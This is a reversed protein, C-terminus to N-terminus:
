SAAKPFAWPDRAGAAEVAGGVGVERISAELDRLSGRSRPELSLFGYGVPADGFVRDVAILLASHAAIASGHEYKVDSRGRDVGERWGESRGDLRGDSYVCDHLGCKPCCDEESAEAPDHFRRCIAYDEGAFDPDDAIECGACHGCPVVANAELMHAAAGAEYGIPIGEDVGHFRAHCAICDRDACGDAGYREDTAPIETGYPCPGSETTDHTCVDRACQNAVPRGAQAAELREEAARVALYAVRVPEWDGNHTKNFPPRFAKILERELRLAADRDPCAELHQTVAHPFWESIQSHEHQRQIGRATIGIYILRGAHDYYRYVSNPKADGALHGATSLKM